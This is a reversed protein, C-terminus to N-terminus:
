MVINNCILLVLALFTSHRWLLHRWSNNPQESRSRIRTVVNWHPKFLSKIMYISKKRKSIKAVRFDWTCEQIRFTRHTSQNLFTTQPLRHRSVRPSLKMSHLTLGFFLIKPASQFWSFDDWVSHIFQLFANSTLSLVFSKHVSHRIITFLKGFGNHHHTTSISM